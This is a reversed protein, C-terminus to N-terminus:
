NTNSLKGSFEAWAFFDPGTSDPFPRAGGEGSRNGSRPPWGTALVFQKHRVPIAMFPAGRGGRRRAGFCGRARLSRSQSARSRIPRVWRARPARIPTPCAAIEAQSFPWDTGRSLVQGSRTLDRPTLWCARSVPSPKSTVRGTSRTASAESAGIPRGDMGGCASTSRTAVSPRARSLVVAVAAQRESRCATFSPRGTQTTTPWQDRVRFCRSRPSTIEFHGRVGHLLGQDRSWGQGGGGRQDLPEIASRRRLSCSRRSDM